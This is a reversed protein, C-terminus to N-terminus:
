PCPPGTPSGDSTQNNALDIARACVNSAVLQSCSENEICNSEAVTFAPYSANCTESYRCGVGDPDFGPCCDALQNVAQQCELEDQSLGGDCRSAFLLAVVSAVAVRSWTPLSPTRTGM